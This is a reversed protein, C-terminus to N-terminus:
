QVIKNLIEMAKRADLKGKLKQMVLGMYANARLGPKESVIKRIEEELENENVREVKVAKDVPVGELIKLLVRKVDGEHLHGQVVHELVKELVSESLINKIEEFSKKLKSAFESRWLTVMKAVLNADRHLNSLVEFEDLNGELVLGILEDSLGKKKLEERIDHKLKPLIKKIENIRDRPVRLIPLDTEPYMRARGPLPRLFETNGDALANRVAGEKKKQKIDEKQREIEVEVTKVMMSPDQFGKIEVKDHGPISVNIDQRITGIGRKVKCARLIEGIKLAAEKIQNPNNMAPATTIEVLPIGLRDLRYISKKDHKEIIRASDEELAISEIPVKGFSTEVFGSHAILVTRQFGSTNSGDIVTKRMIQSIPYIECNLLLSIKLAEELAKQNIQHPPEEDLEVLCTSDYGQYIFEKGLSAEHAVAADVEGTEGAVSHLRRTISFHPDDSRLYGACACFLKGADLQQHVELGAKLGEYDSM